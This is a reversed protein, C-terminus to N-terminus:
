CHGMENSWEPRLKPSLLVAAERMTLTSTSSDEQRTEVLLVFGSEAPEIRFFDM